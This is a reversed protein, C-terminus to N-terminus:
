NVNAGMNQSGHQLFCIRGPQANGHRPPHIVGRSGNIQCHDVLFGGDDIPQYQKATEDWHYLRLCGLPNGTTRSEVDFNVQFTWLIPLLLVDHADLGYPPQPDLRCALRRDETTYGDTSPIVYRADLPTPAGPTAPPCGALILACVCFFVWLSCISKM